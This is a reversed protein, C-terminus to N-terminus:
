TNADDSRIAILLGGSFPVVMQRFGNKPDGIYELFDKYLPGFSTVNDAVVIAGPHLRPQVTKLTPLAM